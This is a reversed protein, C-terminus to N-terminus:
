CESVAHSMRASILAAVSNGALDIRNELVASSLVVCAEDQQYVRNLLGYIAGSKMGGTQAMVM